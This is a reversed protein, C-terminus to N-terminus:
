FLISIGTLTNNITNINSRINENATKYDKVIKKVGSEDLVKM